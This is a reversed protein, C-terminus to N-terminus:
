VEYPTKKCYPFQDNNGLQILKFNYDQIFQDLDDYFQISNEMRRCFHQIKENEQPKRM